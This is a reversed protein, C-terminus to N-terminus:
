PALTSTVNAMHFPDETSIRIQDEFLAIVLMIGSGVTIGALHLFLHCVPSEGPKTEVTSIEPLMDVLAIYLFMGATMAFIWFSASSINGVCVGIIMGLFALVSSLLNYFLAQKATMGAKLLVAFDGLEHPLEHCFVAISTSLGGTLSNAFAAGIALGDSFNHLGDGLVVMWAVAAISTPPKGDGHSHGHGKKTGDEQDSEDAHSEHSKLSQQSAHRSNSNLHNPVELTASKSSSRRHEDVVVDLADQMVAKNPNLVMVIDECSKGLGNDGYDSLKQGVVSERISRKRKRKRQKKKEALIAMIREAIFFFYIGALAVLGKYVSNKEAAEAAEDSTDHGTEVSLISHPLLHLLADGTLSGVALAVLFQILHNYFVKQMIPVVAVGGLGVLSIITISLFAFGWIHAPLEHLEWTREASVGHNHGHRRKKEHSQDHDDDDDHTTGGKEKPHYRYSHEKGHFCDKTQQLNRNCVHIDLQYVMAPCVSLFEAETLGNEYKLQYAMFLQSPTMCM